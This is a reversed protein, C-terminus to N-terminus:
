LLIRMGIRAREDDSTAFADDVLLPVPVVGRSLFESIALRLALYLQDRSGTSLQLLARTRAAPQGQAFKLSFDLDEGFRLEAVQTGMSTLIDSVRRNLYAAWRRHTEQAVQQITEQAIQVAQQFRKARELARETRELEALKEPHEVHHRRWAEEVQLRLDARERQVQDLDERYRRTEVEIEAQPRPAAAAATGAVGKGRETNLLELQSRLEALTKEPLLRREAQPILEDVLTLHRSRGRARGTLDSIYESWGRDPDYAVGAAKLISLAHEKLEHTAVEADAKEEDVWGWSKEMEALRQRAALQLRIGAAVRELRAPDPTGGGARALVASAEQLVQKRRSELTTLSEQARMVPTSEENLRVYENWDRVLEIADRYGLGRSTENLAKESETRQVRLQNLRRQAEGLRNLAAERDDERLRAGTRLLWVGTALVASGSALLSIWVGLQLRLALLVIGAITSGLGFAMLLWGPSRRATRMADVQRLTETSDTRAKELEAVETQYQLQMDFQGRLLKQKAEPLTKFRSSLFQLREPVHGQGALSDRLEFVASRARSDQESLRRIESAMAVLKDADEATCADYAKLSTLETVLQERERAREEDRRAELQELSKQAGELRAVTERLDAEANSPLRSATALDAAEERLEDLERRREDHEALKHRVEGALTERREHDIKALADRAQDEKEGLRMLQDLPGSLKGFEHELTQAEARLAERRAELRQIATEVKM